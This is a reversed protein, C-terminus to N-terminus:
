QLAPTHGGRRAILAAACPRVWAQIFQACVLRGRATNDFLRAAEYADRLNETSVPVTVLSPSVGVGISLAFRTGELLRVLRHDQLWWSPCAKAVAPLAAGLGGEAGAEAEAEAGERARKPRPRRDHTLEVLAEAATGRAGMGMGMGTGAGAFPRPPGGGGKYHLATSGYGPRAQLSPRSSRPLPPPPCALTPLPQARRRSLSPTRPHPFPPQATRRRTRRPAFVCRRYTEEPKRPRTTHLFIPDRKGARESPPRPLKAAEKAAAILQDAAQQQDAYSLVPHAFRECLKPSRETGCFRSM